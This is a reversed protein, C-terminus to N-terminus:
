TTTAVDTMSVSYAVQGNPKEWKLWCSVVCEVASPLGGFVLSYPAVADFAYVPTQTWIDSPDVNGFAIGEAQTLTWGDPADPAVIAATITDNGPTLDMSVMGLGGRAGPSGIFTDMVDPTVQGRINRVNQGVFANVGLLPKGSAFTNWPLTADGPLQKWMQTMTRFIDRTLTQATTRPNAPVVYRRAYAIGRWRAYTQTKAITGAADFSLLPATTKAM